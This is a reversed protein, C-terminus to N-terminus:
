RPATYGATTGEFTRCWHLTRGGAEDTFWVFADLGPAYLMDGGPFVHYAPGDGVRVYLPWGQRLDDVGERMGIMVRRGDELRWEGALSALEAVSPWATDAAVNLAAPEPPELPGPSGGDLLELIARTVWPPPVPSRRNVAWVISTQSAADWYVMTYFGLGDGTFYYREGEDSYYWCLFNLASRHTEGLRPAEFGWEMGADSLVPKSHFSAAWCYMDRVSSYIGNSGYDGANDPPEEAKWEGSRVEYSLTRPGRDWDRNWIPRVFTSEMGLPEFIRVELFDPYSEGSVREILLAALDYAANSYQFATGPAFPLPPRHEALISLLLDNTREAGEPAGVAFYIATPLLGSNHALLHRVSIRDYPFGELYKSVPADLDVLGEDALMLVSAATFTKAISACWTPTDPTFLVGEEVNAFGFGKEYLVEGGRGVVIAGNFYGHEHLGDM